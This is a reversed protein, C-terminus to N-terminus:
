ATLRKIFEVLMRVGVGTGGKTRYTSAGHLFAPGAIDLHIWPYDTFHELFKGASIQGGEGKGLNSLDAIDSKIEDGYESWLPFRVTREYTNYAAEELKNFTADEATGMTATAYTGIARVAAGTLTAADLVLLPKFKKAYALADGLLLRGEADTNKVEVTTGDYMTIVDGPTIANGGPRNDTAPILAIVHVPMKQTAIARITGAMAAAGAMDSKMFDMSAPTPKLSLGGTDYVVGKGVLVIPKKNAANKPKWELITFTPPDISGKNVGLLGGMKLAEIKKKNLVETKLGVEKGMAEMEASFQLATLHSLPKNVMDRSWCVSDIVHKLNEFATADIGKDIVKVSQLPHQRKESDSFLELYQYSSLMLGELLCSMADWPAVDNVITVADIKEKLLVNQLASGINRLAERDSSKESYEPLCILFDIGDERSLYTIQKSDKIAKKVQASVSLKSTADKGHALFIQTGKTAKNSLTLQPRM